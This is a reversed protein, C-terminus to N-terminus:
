CDERARRSGWRGTRTGPTPPRSSGAIADEALTMRGGRVSAEILEPLAWTSIFLGRTEESAQRAAVLADIYRGLGNDVVASMWLALEVGLGEGRAVADRKTAEVLASAETMRGQYAALVMAGYPSIHSGTAENVADVEACLSAAAEFEGCWTAIMAQGNLAASL